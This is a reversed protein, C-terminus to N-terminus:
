QMTCLCSSILNILNDPVHKTNHSVKPSINWLTPWIYSWFNHCHFVLSSVCHRPGCSSLWWSEALLLIWIIACYVASNHVRIHILVLMHICTASSMMISSCQRNIIHLYMHQCVKYYAFGEIEKCYFQNPRGQLFLTYRTHLCTNSQSSPSVVIRSWWLGGWESVWESVPKFNFTFVTTQGPLVEREVPLVAFGDMAGAFPVIDDSIFHWCLSYCRHIKSNVWSFCLTGATHNTISVLQFYVFNCQMTIHTCTCSRSIAHRVKSESLQNPPCYGFKLVETDISVHPVASQTHTCLIM